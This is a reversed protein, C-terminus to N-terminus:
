YIIEIIIIFLILHIIRSKYFLTYDLTNEEKFISKIQTIISLGGFSLLVGTYLIKNKYTTLSKNILNIGNTLEFIGTILPHEIPLLGNIINFLIIIGLISLLANISSNITEILNFKKILIPKNIIEVKISRNILGIFLNILINIIVLLISDKRDLYSTLTIILIPNYLMCMSLLKITENKTICKNDLLDKIYKANSPTGSICSMIFPYISCKNCNFLNSFFIGLTNSLLNIINTSMIFNSLIMIPFISPFISRNFLDISEITSNILINRNTFILLIFLFCLLTKFINKM